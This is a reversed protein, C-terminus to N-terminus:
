IDYRELILEVTGTEDLRWDGEYDVAQQLSFHWEYNDGRGHPYKYDRLWGKKPDYDTVIMRDSNARIYRKGVEIKM